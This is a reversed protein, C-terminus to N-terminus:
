FNRNEIKNINEPWYKTNKLYNCNFATEHTKILNKLINTHLNKYVMDKKQKGHIIKIILCTNQLSANQKYNIFVIFKKNKLSDYLTINKILINIRQMPFENQKNTPIIIIKQNYVTLKLNVHNYKKAQKKINLLDMQEKTNQSKYKHQGILRGKCTFLANEFNVDEVNSNEKDMKFLDDLKIINLIFIFNKHM